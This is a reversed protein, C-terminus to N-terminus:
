ELNCVSVIKGMDKFYLLFKELRVIPFKECLIYSRDPQGGSVRRCRKGGCCAGSAVRSATNKNLMPIMIMRYKLGNALTTWAPLGSVSKRRRNRDRTQDAAINTQESRNLLKAAEVTLKQLDGRRWRGMYMRICTCRARQKVPIFGAQYNRFASLHRM